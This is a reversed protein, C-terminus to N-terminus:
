KCVYGSTKGSDTLATCSGSSCSNPYSPGDCQQKCVGDCLLGVTCLASNSCTQGQSAGMAAVNLVCAKVGSALSQCLTGAPCDQQASCLNACYFATGKDDVAACRLAGACDLFGQGCREGAGAALLCVGSGDTSSTLETCHRSCPCDAPGSINCGFYCKCAGNAIIGVLGSSCSNDPNCATGDTKPDVPNCQGSVLDSTSGSMDVVISSLDVTAENRTTEEPAACAALTTLVLFAPRM